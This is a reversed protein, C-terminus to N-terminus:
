PHIDSTGCSKFYDKSSLVILLRCLKTVNEKGSVSTNDPTYWYPFQREHNRRKRGFIHRFSAKRKFTKALLHVDIAAFRFNIIQIDQIVSKWLM